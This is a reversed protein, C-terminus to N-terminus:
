ALFIVDNSLIEGNIGYLVVPTTGDFISKAIQSFNDRNRTPPVVVQTNDFLLPHDLQMEVVACDDV